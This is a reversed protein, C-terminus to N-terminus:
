RSSDHRHRDDRGSREFKIDTFSRKLDSLMIDTIDSRDVTVHKLLHLDRVASKFEKIWRDNIQPANENAPLWIATTHDFGTLDNWIGHNLTLSVMNVGSLPTVFVGGNCGCTRGNLSWVKYPAARGIRSTHIRQVCLGAIISVAAITLLLKGLSYRPWKM